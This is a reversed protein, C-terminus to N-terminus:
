FTIVIYFCDFTSQNDFAVLFAQMENKTKHVTISCVALVM